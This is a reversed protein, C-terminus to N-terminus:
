EFQNGFVNGYDKQEEFFQGLEKKGERLTHIGGQSNILQINDNLDVNAIPKSFFPEIKIGQDNVLFDEKKIPAGSISNISDKNQGTFKDRLTNRGYMNLSDIVKSDGKMALNHNQQVLEIESKKSDAYNQQDYISNGSGMYRPPNAETYLKHKKQKDQNMLYGVGILGLLIVSEM